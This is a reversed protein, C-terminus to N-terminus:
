TERKLMLRVDACRGKERKKKKERKGKKERIEGVMIAVAGIVRKDM